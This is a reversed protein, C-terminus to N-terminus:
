LKTRSYAFYLRREKKTALRASIIRITSEDREARVVMVLGKAIPGIAVYREEDISHESDFAEWYDVGSTFLKSAQEFSLGHKRENQEAKAPDWEFQLAM